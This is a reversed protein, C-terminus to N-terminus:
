YILIDSKVLVIKRAEDVDLEIKKELKSSRALRGGVQVADGRKLQRANPRQDKKCSVSRTDEQTVSIQPSKIKNKSLKRIRFINM